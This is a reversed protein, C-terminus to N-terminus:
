SGRRGRGYNNYARSRRPFSYKYSYFNDDRGREIKPFDCESNTAKLTEMLVNKLHHKGSNYAKVIAIKLIDEISCEDVNKEIDTYDAYRFNTISQSGYTVRPSKYKDQKKEMKEKKETKDQVSKDTDTKSQDDSEQLKENEEQKEFDNKDSESKESDNDDSEIEFPEIKKISKRGKKM